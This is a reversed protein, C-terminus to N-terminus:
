WQVTKNSTLYGEQFLSWEAYPVVPQIYVRLNKEMSTNDSYSNVYARFNYEKFNLTTWTDSEKKYEHALYNTTIEESFDWGEISRELRGLAGSEDIVSDPSIPPSVTVDEVMGSETQFTPLYLLNWDNQDYPPGNNGHSYDLLDKNFIYEYNMVSYYNGWKGLFEQHEKGFAYASLNDCGPFSWPTIGLSHGIEHMAVAALTLRQLRPTFAQKELITNIPDGTWVLSTDYRHFESPHTFAGSHGIVLYRFIGKREDAFHNRYYQLMMGSDQSITQYHTLLEGGGNIPGNPWGYDIYLNINHQSFREIMAQQSEEWFIHPPDFLGGRAMGDAEIYIDQHFPDAFWKEMKYEEINELGDVDPDLKSHDDQIFPDYGWKWEWNTPIGDNDPDLKSDDITPNTHLINVETWYPIGDGDSDTQYINFWVEFNEGIYHGYGDKDNFYDDGDWRGTRFDYILCIKEKETNRAHRGLLGTKEHEMISLTINATKQEEKVDKIIKNENFITDWDEFFIESSAGLAAVDKSIYELGDINSIFYFQPKTKWSPGLTMLKDLLGRHRIRDIELIIGQNTLPSIREDMKIDEPKKETIPETQFYAYFLTITLIIAALAAIILAIKKNKM